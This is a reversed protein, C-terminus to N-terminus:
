PFVDPAVVRALRSRDRGQAPCLVNRHWLRDYHDDRRVATPRRKSIAVPMGGRTPILSENRASERARPLEREALADPPRELVVVQGYQLSVEVDRGPSSRWM